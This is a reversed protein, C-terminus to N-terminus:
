RNLRKGKIREGKDKAWWGLKAAEIRGGQKSKKGSTGCEWNRFGFESNWQGEGM